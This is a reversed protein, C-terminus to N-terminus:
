SSCPLLTSHLIPHLSSLHSPCMHPAKNTGKDHGRLHLLQGAQIKDESSRSIKQTSKITQNVTGQFWTYLINETQGESGNKFKEVRRQAGPYQGKRNINPNQWHCASALTQHGSLSYIQPM